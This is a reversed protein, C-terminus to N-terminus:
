SARMGFQEAPEFRTLLAAYEEIVRELSFELAREKLKKPTLPSRLTASIADALATVDGVPVLRGYAGNQLIEGPGSECDTSVVPTGAAMAEVLVNGFGEWASSFVFVASRAMYAQPNEVFGPLSVDNELGLERVLFWLREREDGEGLIILRAPRSEKVIRFARILTPFDKQRVLRGAGLLVPPEGPSYWPHGLPEKARAVLEPTVAPNHIVRISEAPLGTKLSLDRAVGRSIAVIDDAWPYFMRMLVPSLRGKIHQAHRSSHSLTNAERIVIKTRVNAMRRAWLAVINAHGLTSLLSVPQNRRLYVALPRLSALVRPARLDVVRVNAPIHRLFPGEASALMLDTEIGRESLGKAINLMMREAGGGHLTPLFLAVRGNGADNAASM